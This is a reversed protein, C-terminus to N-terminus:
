ADARVDVQPTEQESADSLGFFERPRFGTARAVLMAPFQAIAVNFDRVVANYYRRANQIHDEIETLGKQLALYSEGASLDPYA